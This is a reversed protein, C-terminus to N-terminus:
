VCLVAASAGEFSFRMLIFATKALIGGARAAGRLMAFEGASVCAVSASRIINTGPFFFNQRPMGQADVRGRM